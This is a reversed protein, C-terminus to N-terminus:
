RRCVSRRRGTAPTPRLGRGTLESLEQESLRGETVVRLNARLQRTGKGDRGAAWRAGRDFIGRAAPEPLMRVARWGAAFGADTLLATTRTRM